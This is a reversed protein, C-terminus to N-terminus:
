EDGRHINKFEKITEKGYYILGVIMAIRIVITIGIQLLQM